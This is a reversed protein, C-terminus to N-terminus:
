LNQGLGAAGNGAAVKGFAHLQLAACFDAFQGLREVAHGVIQLAEDMIQLFCRKLVARQKEAGNLHQALGLFVGVECRLKLVDGVADLGTLREGRGVIRGRRGNRPM